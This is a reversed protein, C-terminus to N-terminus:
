GLRDFGMRKWAVQAGRVALVWASYMESENPGVHKIAFSGLSWRQWDLGPKLLLVTNLM